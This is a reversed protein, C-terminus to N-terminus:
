PCRPLALLRSFGGSLRTGIEALTQDRKEDLGDGEKVCVIKSSGCIDLTECFANLKLHNMLARSGFLAKGAIFVGEIEAQGAEILTRYPAKGRGRLILVDAHKGAELSGIKTDFQLAKAANITVMEFMERDSFLGSLHERNYKDLVKLEDLLDDAGNITWDPALAINLGLKKALAIDNTKGYLALNSSPSWVLSMGAAKMKQLEPEGLATGHIVTTRPLLLGANELEVFESRAKSDIGEAVHIIFASTVGTKLEDVLKEPNSISSVGTVNTRVTKGGDLGHYSLDANRVLTNACARSLTGQIMTAGGLMARIEGWKIMECALSECAGAVCLGTECDSPKGCGGKGDIGKPNLISNHPDKIESAYASNATWQNHNTFSQPPTWEPQYNYHTHNHADVLGPYIMGGTNVITAGLAESRDDCRTDVCILKDAALLVEGPSLVGQPTVVTGRLLVRDKAGPVVSLDGPPLLDAPPMAGDRPAARDLSPGGGDPGGFPSGSSCALLSCAFLGLTAISSLLRIRRSM